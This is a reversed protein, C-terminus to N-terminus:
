SDGRVTVLHSGGNWIGFRMVFMVIDLPLLTVAKGEPRMKFCLYDKESVRGSM